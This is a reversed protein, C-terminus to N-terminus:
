QITSLRSVNVSFQDDGLLVRVEVEDIQKYVNMPQTIALVPLTQPLVLNGQIYQVPQPSPHRTEHLSSSSSSSSSTQPSSDCRQSIVSPTVEHTYWCNAGLM